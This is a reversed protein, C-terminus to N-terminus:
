RDDLLLSVAGPAFSGLGGRVCRVRSPNSKYNRNLSGNNFAVYWANTPSYTSTSGSWYWKNECSFAPDIAPGSRLDAVISSLERIDPLRWDTYGGTTANECWALAAMWNMGAASGTKEWVLGTTQDSITGDGNDVYGALTPSAALVLALGIVGFVHIPRIRKM